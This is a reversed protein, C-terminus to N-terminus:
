PQRSRPAPPTSPPRDLGSPCSTTVPALVNDALRSSGLGLFPAALLVLLLIGYPIAESDAAKQTTGLGGPATGGSSPVPLNPLPTSFGLDPFSGTDIGSDFSGTDTAGTDSGGTDTGFPATALASVTGQGLTVAALHNDTLFAIPNPLPGLSPKLSDPISNILQQLQAQEKGLYTFGISLGASQYGAAGSEATTPGGSLLELHLGAGALLKNLSPTAQGLVQRLLKQVPATLQQVPGVLSNLVSGLPAAPTQAPAPAQDLVLGDKTLTAALGLFKVGSATTGGSAMGTTGDHVAVLDTVLSDITIVGGLLHVGGLVVRTRAVAKGDEIGSQSSSSISQVGLIPNADIGPFAGTAAVGQPSSSAQEVAGLEQQSATTPGSPFFVESKIPYEPITSPDIGEQALLSGFNVILGGPYAISSLGYGTPGSGFRADTEPSALDLVPAGGPLLGQVEYRVEAGLGRASLDYSGFLDEGTQQGSAATDQARAPASVAGGVGLVIAAITLPVLGRPRRRRPGLRDRWRM